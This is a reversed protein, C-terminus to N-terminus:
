FGEEFIVAALIFDHKLVEDHVGEFDGPQKYKGNNYSVETTANPINDDSSVFTFFIFCEPILEVHLFLTNAIPQNHAPVVGHCRQRRHSISVVIRLAIGLDKYRHTIHKTPNHEKGINHTANNLNNVIL